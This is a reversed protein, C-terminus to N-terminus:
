RIVPSYIDKLSLNRQVLTPPEFTYQITVEPFVNRLHRIRTVFDRAWIQPLDLRGFYVIKDAMISSFFDMRPLTQCYDLFPYHNGNEPMSLFLHIPLNLGLNYYHVVQKLLEASHYEALLRGVTNPHLQVQAALDKLRLIKGVSVLFSLLAIDAPTLTRFPQFVPDLSVDMIPPPADPISTPEGYFFPYPQTWNNKGIMLSSLNWSHVRRTMPLIWSSNNSEEGLSAKAVTLLEHNQYPLQILSFCKEGLQLSLLCYKILPDSLQNSNSVLYTEFGLKGMDLFHMPIALQFFRFYELKNRITEPSLESHQTVFTQTSPGTRRYQSQTYASQFGNLLILDSRSLPLAMDLLKPFLVRFLTEETGLIRGNHINVLFNNLLRDQSYALEYTVLRLPLLVRGGFWLVSFSGLSKMWAESYEILPHDKYKECFPITLKEKLGQTIEVTKSIRRVRRKTVETHIITWLDCFDQVFPTISSPSESPRQVGQSKQMSQGWIIFGIELNLSGFIM